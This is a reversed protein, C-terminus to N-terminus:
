MREKAQTKRTPAVNYRESLDDMVKKLKEDYKKQWYDAIETDPNHGQAALSQILGFKLLDHYDVDLEPITSLSLSSLLTPRKYYYIQGILGTTQLPLGDEFLFFTGETARGYYRGSSINDELGAYDFSNFTTGYVDTSVVIKEINEIRCNSPMPYKSQNSLTIFPYPELENKLKNIMIYLDLYIDNLDIIKNATTESNPFKRDAFNIIEQVTAM